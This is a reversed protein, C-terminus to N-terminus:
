LNLRFGTSFMHTRFNEDVLVRDTFGYWRWDATWSVRGGLPVSLQGQPQYYRTPQSGTIISYSGGFRLRVDRAVNVEAYAGGHHGNDRYRSNRVEFLPTLFPLDSRLTARTYDVLVNFRRGANPAWYLGVSSQRSQFDFNVGPNPNQNNLVAFSGNLTLSPRLRYHARLKGRQYEMLSTRFFARDGPSAEFDMTLSFKPGVRLRSGALAVHRRVEGTNPSIQLSSPPTQADGWVYRHGGRLSLSSNVDYIVDVQHQSYNLVLLESTLLQARTEPSTDFVQTLLSGASVHFRDTWWSQVIRLRQTPQFETTWSGSSRPRLADGVSEEFQSTFPMLSQLLVFNGAAQHDYIVDISPQSYLFQGSFNLRSWPRGQIIARNFLGDGQVQYRQQLQDLLINRGLLTTRRNGRNAGGSFFIQQDDDFSTRGQELTLNFRSFNLRVGGRFSNLTDDLDTSVPFENGDTVFTTVGLGSGEAYTFAVFPSVLAGPKVRLETDLQRREIDFRRQSLLVGEGLLPNAFSPLSNFYAVNRYDLHFEYAGAKEMDFRATNYPDGGWSTTILDFRDVYKGGLNRYRAEADFLRPGEGLNVVSRYVDESGRVDQVWRNGFEVTASFKDEAVPSPVGGAQQAWLSAGPLLM